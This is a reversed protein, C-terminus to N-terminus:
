VRNAYGIRMDQSVVVTHLRKNKNKNLLPNKHDLQAAFRLSQEHVALFDRFVVAPNTSRHRKKDTRIFSSSDFSRNLASREIFDLINL